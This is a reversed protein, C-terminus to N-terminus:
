EVQIRIKIIEINTPPSAGDSGTSLELEVYDTGRYVSEPKYVYVAEWKTDANRVIDSVLFHKAQMKITAGEEDGSIGTRFEYTESNTIRVFTTSAKINPDTTNECGVLLILLCFIFGNLIKKM